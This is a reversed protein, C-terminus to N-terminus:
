PNAMLRKDPGPRVRGLSKFIQHATGPQASVKSFNIPWAQGSKSFIFHQKAAGPWPGGESFQINWAPGHGMREFISQGPRTAAM